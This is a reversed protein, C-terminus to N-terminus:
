PIRETEVPLFPGELTEQSGDHIYPATLTINRVTSTKFAGRDQDEKSITYWELNPEKKDMGVGRNHCKEDSFIDGAYCTTGGVKDRFFM